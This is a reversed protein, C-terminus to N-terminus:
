NPATHELSIYRQKIRELFVDCPPRNRKPISLVTSIELGLEYYKSAYELHHQTNKGFNFLQSIGSASGSSILLLPLVVTSSALITSSLGALVIPLLVTPIGFGHYLAKMVLGKKQHKISNINIKDLWDSLLNEERTEWLLEERDLKDQSQSKSKSNSKVKTKKPLIKDIETMEFTTISM